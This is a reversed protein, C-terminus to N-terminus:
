LGLKYLMSPHFYPSVISRLYPMSKSSIYIRYQGKKRHLNCIFGYRIILVNMLRVQDPVTFSDTCLILGSGYTGDGM